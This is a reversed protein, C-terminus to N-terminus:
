SPISSSRNCWGQTGTTGGDPARPRLAPKEGSILANHAFALKLLPGSRDISPGAPSEFVATAITM